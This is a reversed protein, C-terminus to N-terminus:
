RTASQHSEPPGLHAVSRGADRTPSLRRGKKQADAVRVIGADSSCEGPALKRAYWPRAM